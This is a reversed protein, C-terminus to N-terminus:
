LWFEREVKHNCAWGMADKTQYELIIHLIPRCM